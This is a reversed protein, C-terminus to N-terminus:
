TPKKHPILFIICINLFICSIWSGPILTSTRWFATHWPFKYMQPKYHTQRGRGYTADPWSSRPSAHPPPDRRVILDIDWWCGCPSATYSICVPTWLGAALLARVGQPSHGAWVLGALTMCGSYGKIIHRHRDPWAAAGPVGLGYKSGSLLSHLSLSVM